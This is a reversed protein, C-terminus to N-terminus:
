PLGLRERAVAILKEVRHTYTHEAVTRALGAEAIARREEPRQRYYAILDHLEERNAYYVIEKRDEYMTELFKCRPHLLFAGFGLANWVRNSAYRDTIPADPAVVIESSAILNALDRRYVGSSVHRFDDGYKAAMEEVFSVRGQGGNTSIGTFLIPAGAAAPNARGMGTIRGDAGQPLWILKRSCDRAVLDGDTAFGLDVHPLISRMWRLRSQGRAHITPDPFSTLDFYWFVKRCKVKELAGVNGFKFSLMLDASWRYARLGQKENIRYVHHGLAELAHAVAGEDDAQGADHKAVFLIKM